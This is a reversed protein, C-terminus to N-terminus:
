ILRGHDLRLVNPHYRDIWNQDHTAVVVTVGVQHFACFIELIETASETSTAPRSTPSCSPRGISWPAPLRWASSSAAPSAIPMRRKERNLLGVKDLAAQARRMRRV